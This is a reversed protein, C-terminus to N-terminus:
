AKQYSAGSVRLPLSCVHFGIMSRGPVAPGRGNNHQGDNGREHERCEYDEANGVIRFLADVRLIGIAVRLLADFRGVRGLRLIRLVIADDIWTQRKARRRRGGSHFQRHGVIIKAHCVLAAGPGAASQM